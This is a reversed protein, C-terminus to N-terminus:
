ITYTKDVTFLCEFFISVTFVKSTLQQDGHQALKNQKYKYFLM